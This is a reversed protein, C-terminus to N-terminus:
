VTPDIEFLWVPPAATPTALDIQIGNAHCQDLIEGMWAFQYNGPTPELKAWSFIGLSMLNAGTEQMLQYDETLTNEDWQDPNWDGGYALTHNRFFSQPPFKESWTM